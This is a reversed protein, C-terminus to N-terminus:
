LPPPTPGDDRELSGSLMDEFIRSVLEDPDPMWARSLAESLLVRGANVVQLRDLLRAICNVQRIGDSGLSIGGILAGFFDNILQAVFM